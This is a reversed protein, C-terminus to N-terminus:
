SNKKTETGMLSMLLHSPEKCVSSFPLLPLFGGCLGVQCQPEQGCHLWSELRGEQPFLHGRGELEGGPEAPEGLM